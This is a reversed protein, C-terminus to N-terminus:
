RSGSRSIMRCRRIDAPGRGEGAGDERDVPRIARILTPDGTTDFPVFAVDLNAPSTRQRTPLRETVEIEGALHGRKRRLAPAADHDVM